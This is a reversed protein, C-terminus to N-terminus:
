HEYCEGIKTKIKLKFNIIAMLNNKAYIKSCKKCLVYKDKYLWTNFPSNYYRNCRQSLLGCVTKPQEEDYRSSVIHLINSISSLLNIHLLM